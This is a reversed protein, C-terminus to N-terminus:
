WHRPLHLRCHLRLNHHCGFGSEWLCQVKQHKSRLSICFWCPQQAPVYYDIWISYKGGSSGMSLHRDDIGDMWSRHISQRNSADSALVSAYVSEELNYVGSIFYISICVRTRIMVPLWICVCRNVSKNGDWELLIILLNTLPQFFWSSSSNSFHFCTSGIIIAIKGIWWLPYAFAAIGKIRTSRANEIAHLCIKRDSRIDVPPNSTPFSM